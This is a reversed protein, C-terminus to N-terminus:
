GVRVIVAGRDVSVSLEQAWGLPDGDAQVLEPAQAQVDVNRARRFELSGAEPFLKDQLGFQRMGIRRVLDGWGLLGGRTDLVGIDLWGDDIRADPALVMGGPLSGCNAFLISRAEVEFQNRNEGNGTTLVANVRDENLHRVGAVIYASWGMIRKLDADTDDMVQADFGMGSIVFFPERGAFSRAEPDIAALAASFEADPEPAEVWGVDIRRDRGTVAISVLNWLSDIPLELNRALLNGTGLPLIGMPVGTGALVGAVVRITGDGGAAIVVSPNMALAERAQGIGPDDPTTPIWVPEAYGADAATEALLRRVEDFDVKKSPNYVVAVGGGHTVHTEHAAHLSAALDAIQLRMYEIRRRQMIAFFATILTLVLAVIAVWGTWDM